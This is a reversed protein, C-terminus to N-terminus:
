DLERFMQTLTRQHHFHVSELGPLLLSRSDLTVVTTWPCAQRLEEDVRNIISRAGDEGERPHLLLQCRHFKYQRDTHLHIARRPNEAAQLWARERQRHLWLNIKREWGGFNYKQAAIELVMKQRHGYSLNALAAWKRSEAPTSARWNGHQRLIEPWPQGAPRLLQTTQGVARFGLKEYLQGAIANDSSVELGVWKGGNIQIHELAAEVLARGIGQGRHEPAVVVNGIIWGRQHREGTQRLSLNGLIQGDSEEWVLGPLEPPSFPPLVGVLFSYRVAQQMQHLIKLGGPGLKQKFGIEILAVVQPLDRSPNVSRIVSTTQQPVTVVAM